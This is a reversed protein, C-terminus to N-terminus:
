HINIYINDEGDGDGDGDGDEDGDGDLCFSIVYFM